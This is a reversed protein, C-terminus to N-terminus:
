FKKNTRSVASIIQFMEPFANMRQRTQLIKSTVPEFMNAYYQLHTFSFYFLVGTDKFTHRSNFLGIRIAFCRLWFSCLIQYFTGKNMRICYM